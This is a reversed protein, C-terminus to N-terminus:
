RSIFLFYDDIVRNAVMISEQEDDAFITIWKVIHIGEVTEIKVGETQQSMLRESTAAKNNDFIVKYFNM